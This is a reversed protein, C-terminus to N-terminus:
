PSVAAQLSQHDGTLCGFMIYPVAPVTLDRLQDGNMRDAPMQREGTGQCYHRHKESRIRPLQLLDYSLGSDEKNDVVFVNLVTM